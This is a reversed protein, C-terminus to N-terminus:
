SKRIKELKEEIKEFRPILWVFLTINILFGILIAIFIFGIFSLGM